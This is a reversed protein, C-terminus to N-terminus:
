NESHVIFVLLQKFGDFTVLNAWQAKTNKNIKKDGIM